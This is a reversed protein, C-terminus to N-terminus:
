SFKSYRPLGGGQWMAWVAAPRRDNRCLREAGLLQHRRCVMKRDTKDDNEAYRLAAYLDEDLYEPDTTKNPNDAYDLTAKLNKFVPWFGTVAM